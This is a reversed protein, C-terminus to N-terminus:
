PYAMNRDFAAIEELAGPEDKLAEMLERKRDFKIATDYLFFQFQPVNWMTRIQHRVIPLENPKLAIWYQMLLTMRSPWLDRQNPATDLSTVLPDLVNRPADILNQRILALTVWGYGDAPSLKLEAIVHQEARRMWMAHDPGFIPFALALQYEFLGLTFWYRAPSAWKLADEVIEINRALDAPAHSRSMLERDTMSRQAFTISAVARPVALVLLSIGLGFVLIATTLRFWDTSGRSDQTETKGQPAGLQSRWM